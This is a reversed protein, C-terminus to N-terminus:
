EAFPSRALSRECIALIHKCSKKYIKRWYNIDTLWIINDNLQCEMMNEHMTDFKFMTEPIIITTCWKLIMKKIMENQQQQTTSIVSSDLFNFDHGNKCVFIQVNKMITTRATQIGFRIKHRLDLFFSQWHCLSSVIYLFFIDFLYLNKLGTFSMNKARRHHRHRRARVRIDFNQFM